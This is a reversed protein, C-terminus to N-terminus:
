KPWNLDVAYLAQRGSFLCTSSARAVAYEYRGSPNLFADKPMPLEAVVKGKSLDLMALKYSDDASALLAYREDPSFCVLSAPAAILKIDQTRLKPKLAVYAIKNRTGDLVVHKEGPSARLGSAVFGVPMNVDTLTRPSSGTVDLILLKRGNAGEVYARKGDPSIARLWNEDRQHRGQAQDVHDAVRRKERFVPWNRRNAAALEFPFVGAERGRV